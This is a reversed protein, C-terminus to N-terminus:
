RDKITVPQLDDRPSFIFYLKIIASLICCLDSGFVNVLLFSINSEMYHKLLCFLLKAKEYWYNVQFHYTFYNQSKVCSLFNLSHVPLVLMCLELM